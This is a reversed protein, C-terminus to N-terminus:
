RKIACQSLADAQANKHRPIWQLRVAGHVRLKALLDRAQAGLVELGSTPRGNQVTDIVIQSDGYVVLQEINERLATELVAILAQCEASNSDGDGTAASIEITAGTPSRLLAGIATRGPNPHSSGDFWAQWTQADVTTEQRAQRGAAKQARREALADAIRGAEDQRATRLAALSHPQACATLIQRLAQVETMLGQKALRRAAVRERHFAFACLDTFDYAEISADAPM